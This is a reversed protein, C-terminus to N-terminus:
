GLSDGARRIGGGVVGRGPDVAGWSSVAGAERATRRLAGEKIVALSLRGRWAAATIVVAIVVLDHDRRHKRRDGSSITVNMLLRNDELSRALLGPLHTRGLEVLKNTRRTDRRKHAESSRHERKLRTTTHLRLSALTDDM